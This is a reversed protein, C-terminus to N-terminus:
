YSTKMSVLNKPNLPIKQGSASIVHTGDLSISGGSSARDNLATSQNTIPCKVGDYGADGPQFVYIAATNATADQLLALGSYTGRFTMSSGGNAFIKGFDGFNQMTASSIASIPLCAKSSLQYQNISGTVVYPICSNSDLPIDFQKTGGVKTQYLSQIVIARSHPPMAVNQSPMTYTDTTTDTNTWTSSGGVSLTTTSTVEAIGVNMKVAVAEQLGYTLGQAFTTTHSIQKSQSSSTMTLPVDSNNCLSSVLDFSSDSKVAENVRPATIDDALSVTSNDALSTQIHNTTDDLMTAALQSGKFPTFALSYRNPIITGNSDVARFTKFSKKEIDTLQGYMSTVFYNSLQKMTWVNPYLPSQFSKQANLSGLSASLNFDLQPIQIDTTPALYNIVQIFGGNGDDQANSIPGVYGTKGSLISSSCDTSGYICTVNLPVSKTVDISNGDSMDAFIKYRYPTGVVLGNMSQSPEIRINKVNSQTVEIIISSEFTPVTTDIKGNPTLTSYSYTLRNQGTMTTSTIECKSGNSVFPINQDTPLSYLSCTSSNQNQLTSSPVDVQTGDSLILQAKIKETRPAAISFTKINDDVIKLGVIKAKLVTGQLTTTYGQYTGTITFNGSEKGTINNGSISIVNSETTSYVVNNIAQSIGNSYLAEANINITEGAALTNDNRSSILRLGTVTAQPTSVNVQSKVNYIDYTVNLTGTGNGTAVIYGKSDNLGAQNVVTFISKNSSSWSASDTVDITQNNVNCQIISRIGRESGTAFQSNYPTGDAEQLVFSQVGNTGCVTSILETISLKKLKDNVNATMSNTGQVGNCSSLIVLLILASIIKYINRIKFM